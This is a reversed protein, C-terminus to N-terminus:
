QAFDFQISSMTTDTHVIIAITLHLYSCIAVTYPSLSQKSILCSLHPLFPTYQNYSISEIFIQFDQIHKQLLFALIEIVINFLKKRKETIKSIYSYVYRYHM